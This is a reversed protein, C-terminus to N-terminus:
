LHRMIMSVNRKLLAFATQQSLAALTDLQDLTGTFLFDRIRLGTEGFSAIQKRVEDAWHAVEVLEAFPTELGAFHTGCIIKLESNLNLKEVDTLYQACRLLSDAMDPRNRKVSDRAISRYVRKADRCASTFFASIANSAKLAISHRRLEGASPLLQLEFEAELRTRRRKLDEVEKDARELATRNAEDVVAASRKGWLLRPLKALLEIGAIVARMSGIRSDTIGAAQGIVSCFSVLNSIRAALQQYETKLAKVSSVTFQGVGIEKLVEVASRCAKGGVTRAHEIDETQQSLKAEYALLGEFRELMQRLANHNATTECAKYTEVKLDVPPVQTKAVRACFEELEVRTHVMTAGTRQSVTSACEILTRIAGNWESILTMLLSEDLETIEINQIGRWPHDALKGFAALPEMQAELTKAADLMQRYTHPSIELPNAFRAETIGTALEVRFTERIASGLLVDYVKLGTEGADQNVRQVYYLLEDKAALLAKANSRQLNSDVLPARYSLRYALSQTVETKSTKSSHLELCFAELGASDLRKKVVELAAMKEAVFLVSLGENLAAAIINTITQSKGTGPPGQIVHSSEGKLVDVVASHQSSDADTILLPEPGQLTDIEYDEAYQINGIEAGAILTRLVPQQELGMKIPWRQPDLDKYMALTSFTFLGITVNRRVKWDRKGAIAREICDLYTGLPNEDSENDSWAPLDIAMGKLLEALAVNIEVDENRSKTFYIYRQEVLERDLSVPLFILPAL